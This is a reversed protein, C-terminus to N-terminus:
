TWERLVSSTFLYNSALSTALILNVLHWSGRAALHPACTKVPQLAARSTDNLARVEQSSLSVSEPLTVTVHEETGQERQVDVCRLRFLVYELMPLWRAAAPVQVYSMENM